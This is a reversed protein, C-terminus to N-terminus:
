EVFKLRPCGSKNMHSEVHWLNLISKKLAKAYENKDEYGTPYNDVMYQLVKSKDAPFDMDTYFAMLPIAVTEIDTTTLEIM